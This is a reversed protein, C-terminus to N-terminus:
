AAVDHEAQYEDFLARPVRGRKNVKKKKRLAWARVDAESPALETRTYRKARHVSRVARTQRGAKVYPALVSRLEKAHKRCADVEYTQGDIGFRVTEVGEVENEHLDCTTQVM